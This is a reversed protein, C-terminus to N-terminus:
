NKELSLLVYHRELDIDSIIFRILLIETNMLINNDFDEELVLTCASRSETNM